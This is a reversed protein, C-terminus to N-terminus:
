SSKASASASNSKDGVRCFTSIVKLLIKASDPTERRTTRKPNKKKTALRSLRKVAEEINDIATRLIEVKSGSLARRWKNTGVEMIGGEETERETLKIGHKATAVELLIVNFIKDTSCHNSGVDILQQSIIICFLNNM